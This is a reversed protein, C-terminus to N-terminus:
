LAADLIDLIETEALPLPNARMSSARLSAEALRRFDRRELGLEGLGRVGLSQALAHLAPGAERAQATRGLALSAVETYKAIAPSGPLREALLRVNASVVHPLLAGCIAGHAAGTMGGLPGAIGHVAGLGANALAMGGSLSAFAMDERAALDGGDGYARPLAALGRRLGERCLGDVLPSARSCVLPEILQTIADLGSDATLRPPLGLTLAPDVLALRPMMSASRLSAKVRSGGTGLASFVANRTAESGTGSTTPIAMCPLAPGIFPKGAGVLEAHDLPDDGELVLVALAKAMDVASGGGFGILLDPGFGRALDLAERLEEIGPEPPATLCLLDLGSGELSELLPTARSAERGRVVLCRKGLKAALEGAMAVKGPGFIIRDPCAFEFEM